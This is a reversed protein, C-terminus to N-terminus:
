PVRVRRVTPCRDFFQPVLPVHLRVGTDASVALTDSYETFGIARIRFTYLGAAPLPLRFAGLSDTTVQNGSPRLTVLAFPLPRGTDRNTIEGLLSLPLQTDTAIRLTDRAPPCEPELRYSQGGLPAAITFAALAVFTVFRM